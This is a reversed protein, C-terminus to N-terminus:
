RCQSVTAHESDLKQLVAPLIGLIWEASNILCTETSNIFERRVKQDVIRADPATDAPPTNNPITGSCLVPLVTELRNNEHVIASLFLATYAGSAPAM